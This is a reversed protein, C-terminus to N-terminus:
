ETLSSDSAATTQSLRSLLMVNSPVNGTSPSPEISEKSEPSPAYDMFPSDVYITEEYDAYYYVSAPGSSLTDADFLSQLGRGRRKDGDVTRRSAVSALGKKERAQQVTVFICTNSCEKMCVLGGINATQGCDQWISIDGTWLPVLVLNFMTAMTARAWDTALAHHYARKLVLFVQPPAPMLGPWMCLHWICVDAVHVSM